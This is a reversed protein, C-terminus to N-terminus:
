DPFRSSRAQCNGGEPRASHVGRCPACDAHDQRIKELRCHRHNPDRAVGPLQESTDARSSRAPRTWSKLHTPTSSRISSAATSASSLSTSRPREMLRGEVAALFRWVLDLPLFPADTSVTAVWQVDPKNRVAWRMGALVGALPGAFGAITDPVVPLGFRAFRAPDGNANIVLAAVQPAFRDIVHQLMPKGALDRLCKDGGGMRRSLGGALLVGVVLNKDGAAM